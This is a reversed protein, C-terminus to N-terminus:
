NDQVSTDHAHTSEVNKVIRQPANIGTTLELTVHERETQIKIKSLCVKQRM